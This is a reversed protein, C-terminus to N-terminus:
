FIWAIMLWIILYFLIFGSIIFQIEGLLGDGSAVAFVLMLVITIFFAIVASDKLGLGPALHFAVIEAFLPFLLYIAAGLVFLLLILTIALKRSERRDRYDLGGIM